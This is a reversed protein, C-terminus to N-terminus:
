AAELFDHLHPPIDFERLHSNVRRLVVNKERMDATPTEVQGSKEKEETIGNAIIQIERQRAIVGLYKKITPYGQLKGLLKSQQDLTALVRALNEPNKALLITEKLVAKLERKEEQNLRAFIREVEELILSLAYEIQDSMQKSIEELILLQEPNHALERPKKNVLNGCLKQISDRDFAVIARPIGQIKGVKKPEAQSEFYKITTLNGSEIEHRISQEKRSVVRDTESSTVDIALRYIRGGIKWEVVLDTHNVRDDYETTEVTYCEGSNGAIWDSSEAHHYIVYELIVSRVTKAGEKQKIEDM